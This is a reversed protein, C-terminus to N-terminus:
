PVDNMRSQWDQATHFFHLIQLEKEVARFFIIHGFRARRPRYLSRRVGPFEPVPSGAGPNESILEVYELLKEVYRDARRESYLEATWSWIALLEAQAEASFRVNLRPKRGAM